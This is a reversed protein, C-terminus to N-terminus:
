DLTELSEKPANSSKKLVAAAILGIVAFFALSQLMNLLWGGIGRQSELKEELEIVQKEIEAEPAGFNEMMGITKEIIVENVETGFDPDIVNVILFHFMSSVLIYIASMALFNMFGQSLTMIGGMFSRIKKLSMILYIVIAIMVLIPIWFNTFLEIGILYALITYVITVLAAILGTRYAYPHIM